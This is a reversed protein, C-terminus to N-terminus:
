KNPETFADIFEEFRKKQKKSVLVDIREKTVKYGTPYTFLSTDVKNKLISLTRYIYTAGGDTTLNALETPFGGCYPLTYLGTVVKKVEESMVVDTACKLRMSALQKKVAARFFVPENNGYYAGNLKVEFQQCKTKLISDYFTSKTGTLMEGRGKFMKLGSRPWDSLSTEFALNEPKNFAVVKWSPKCAVITLDGGNAVFKIGDDAIYLTVPGFHDTQQKIVWVEKLTNNANAPTLFVVFLLMVVISIRFLVSCFHSQPIIKQRNKEIFVNM